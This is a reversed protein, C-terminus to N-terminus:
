RNAATSLYHVLIRLQHSLTPMRGIYVLRRLWYGLNGNLPFRNFLAVAARDTGLSVMEGLPVYTFPLLPYGQLTNFINWACYQAQQIAVQATAPLPPTFQSIDGLAFIEPYGLCQLYANVAIKNATAIPLETLWSPVATGVTWLVIDTPLDAVQGNVQLTVSEEKVAVVSTRLDIWVSRKELERLAFRRNVLPSRGLLCDNRDVIRIRGREGLRDALKCALEVGSTGGGAIVVRIKERNTNELEQLRAELRHCDALTRFPIAGTPVNPTIGGVALVLYSYELQTIMGESVMQIYKGEGDVQTVNGLKFEIPTDALLDRFRPAIEWEELEGTLLEYLLPTFLFRDNRDILVIPPLDQIPLRALSLATYLGGFGGGVIVIPKM